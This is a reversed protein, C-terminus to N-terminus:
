SSSSLHQYFTHSSQHKRKEQPLPPEKIHLRKLHAIVDRRSRQDNYRRLFFLIKLPVYVVVDETSVQVITGLCTRYISFNRVNKYANSLVRAM